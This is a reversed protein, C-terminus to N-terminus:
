EEAVTIGVECELIELGGDVVVDVFIDSAPM